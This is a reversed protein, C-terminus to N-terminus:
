SVRASTHGSDDSIRHNSFVGGGMLIGISALTIFAISYILKSRFPEMLTATRIEHVLWVTLVGTQVGAFYTAYALVMAKQSQRCM